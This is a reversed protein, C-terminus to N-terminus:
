RSQFVQFVNGPDPCFMYRNLCQAFSNFRVFVSCWIFVTDFILVSLFLLWVIFLQCYVICTSILLTLWYFKFQSWGVSALTLYRHGSLVDPSLVDTSVFCGPVFRGSVFCGSVYHGHSLVDTPVFCGYLCFTRLSLVDPPVFRGYLCFTRLCIM